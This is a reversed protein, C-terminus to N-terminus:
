DEFPHMDAADWFARMSTIQGDDNFTMVDIIEVAFKEGGLDTIAQQGFAAEHGVVKVPGILRLEMSPSLTHVFDWFDGIGEMGQKVESGVPDEVTADDAFLSLWGARDNASFRGAYTTIVTRIEEATAVNFEEFTSLISQITPRFSVQRVTLILTVTGSGLPL